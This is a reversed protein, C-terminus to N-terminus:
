STKPKKGLRTLLTNIFNTVNEAKEGVIRRGTAEQISRVLPGGTMGWAGKVPAWAEGIAEGYAFKGGLIFMKLIETAKPIAVIIGFSMLAFILPTIEAGSGLFPPSWLTGPIFGQFNLGLVNFIEVLVNREIATEFAVVLSFMLILYAFYFMVGVLPFVLLNAILNKLWQGFGIQPILAGLTIQLPAIIVSLYVNILTKILMWPIKIMYWICLILLWVVLLLMLISLLRGAISWSSAAAGFAAIIAILFLITYVFMYGLVTIFSTITAIMPQGSIFQYTGRLSIAWGHTNLFLSVIGMFVYMLDVMLGAIAFSFTALIIAGIVKPLASQVTIVVQPSIKVRFMIMFAFVIVVLVFIFYSANRTLKWFGQVIGMAGYGFGEQAKVEKVLSLNGLKDEFYRIGSFPRDKTDLVISLFSTDPASAQIHPLLIDVVKKVNNLYGVACDSLDITNAGWRKLFCSVGEPNFSAVYNLPLSILSWVVWQVQAASYREGFIESPNETDFVKVYWEVFGQNYWTGQSAEARAPFYPAFSFLLILGALTSFILKKLLTKM